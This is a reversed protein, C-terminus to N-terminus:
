QLSSQTRHPLATVCSRPRNRQPELPGWLGSPFGHDLSRGLGTLGRLLHDEDGLGEGDVRALVLDGGGGAGLGDGRGVAAASGVLRRAAAM